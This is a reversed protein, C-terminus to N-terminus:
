CWRRTGGGTGCRASLTQVTGDERIGVRSDNPHNEVSYVVLNAKTSDRGCPTGNPAYCVIEPTRVSSHFEFGNLTNTIEGQEWHEGKGDASPKSAKRFCVAHPTGHSDSCLTPMVDAQYCVNGKGGQQDIAYCVAHRDITNLTYSVGGTVGKGNCGATDARDICNGQVCYCSENATMRDNM